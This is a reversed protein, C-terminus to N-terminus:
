AFSGVLNTTLYWDGMFCSLISSAEIQYKVIRISAIGVPCFYRCIAHETTLPPSIKSLCSRPSLTETCTGTQIHTCTYKVNLQVIPLLPYQFQSRDIYLTISIKSCRYVREINDRAMLIACTATIWKWPLCTFSLKKLILISQCPVYQYKWPSIHIM